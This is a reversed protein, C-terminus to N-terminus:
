SLEPAAGAIRADDGALLDAMTAGLAGALAPLEDIDVKREGAEINAIIWRSTRLDPRIRNMEDAVDEQRMGAAGASPACQPRAGPLARVGAAEAGGRAFRELWCRWSRPISNRTEVHVMAGLPGSALGVQCPDGTIVAPLVSAASGTLRGWTPRTGAESPTAMSLGCDLRDIPAMVGSVRRPAPRCPADGPSARAEAADYDHWQVGVCSRSLGAPLWGCRRPPTVVVRVAAVAVARIAAWEAGTEISQDARLRAKGRVWAFHLATARSVRRRMPVRIRMGLCRSMRQELPRRGAALM